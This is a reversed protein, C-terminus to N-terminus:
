LQWSFISAFPSSTEERCGGRRIQIPRSASFIYSHGKSRKLERAVATFALLAGVRKTKSPTGTARAEAAQLWSGPTPPEPANRKEGRSTADGAAAGAEDLEGLLLRTLDGSSSSAGAGAGGSGSPRSSSSSSGGRGEEEDRPTAERPARPRKRGTPAKRAERPTTPAPELPTTAGNEKEEEAEAKEQEEQEEEEAEMEMEM